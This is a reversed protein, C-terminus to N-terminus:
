PTRIRYIYSAILAGVVVYVLDAQFNRLLATYLAQEITM